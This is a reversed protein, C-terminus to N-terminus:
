IWELIPGFLLILVVDVAAITGVIQLQRLRSRTDYVWAAAGFFTAYGLLVILTVNPVNWWWYEWHFVGAAHLLVEVLVAFISFALVM